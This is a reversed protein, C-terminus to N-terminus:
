VGGGGGRAVFDFSLVRVRYKSAADPVPAAFYAHFQPPVTGNLWTQTCDVIQGAPDLREIVLIMREAGLAYTNYVYGEVQPGRRGQTVDWNLRFWRDLSEAAYLDKPCASHWATRTPELAGCGALLAVAAMGATVKQM